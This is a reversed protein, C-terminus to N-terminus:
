KLAEAYPYILRGSKWEEPLLVVQKGPGAFQAIDNGKIHQYQVLLMRPKEWEGNSGFKVKGVITDFTNAHLYEGVAQQETSKAGAIAQGLVQMMSYAWPPLYHGLPDVGQKEAQAQYKQLFEEIGPFNLTPEPVWFAFNVIGNLKAGLKTQFAAFQLGVMGGGFLKPKLGVEHAALVMGVSDPPYSAVFVVDPNTAKIARVIPTFDVTAPPYTSDYVVELGAQKLNERAGALASHPYEADAGILAVTHPTPHQTAALAFFARSFEQAPTPGFPGIQFYYPYNFKENNALGFLGMFVRQQEIVIPMAPAILNTGYGSVVFDVKDVDLLKTYLGPVSAPKTQDDYYVFEVPRGLLGGNKNVEDRWIEMALLAAKGQAALGGTQAMGFGIRIPSAAQSMPALAIVLMWAGLLTGELKWGRM